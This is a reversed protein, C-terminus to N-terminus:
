NFMVAKNRGLDLQFIIYFYIENYENNYLNNRIFNMRTKYYEHYKFQISKYNYKEYITNCYGVVAHVYGLIGFRWVVVVFIISRLSDVKPYFIFGLYVNNKNTSIGINPVVLIRGKQSFPVFRGM